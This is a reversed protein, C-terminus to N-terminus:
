PVSICEWLEEQFSVTKPRNTLPIEACIKHEIDNIQFHHLQSLSYFMPTAVSALSLLLICSIRNVHQIFLAVSVCM